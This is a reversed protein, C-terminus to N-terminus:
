FIIKSEKEDKLIYSFDDRLNFSITVITGNFSRPINNFRSKGDGKIEYCENDSILTFAGKNLKIFDLILSFGLGGPASTVKTSNGPIIAWELTNFSMEVSELFKEVNQKITKGFDVITLVLNGMRHFYQGCVYVKDSDAHDIVNNFMELFNDIIRERVKDSMNPMQHLTFINLVIYKEFEELNETTANFARYEITSNYADKVKEWKLFRHLGNMQMVKKIKPHINSLFLAHKRKLVLSELIGGFLAFINAAIFEVNNFDLLIRKEYNSNIIEYLEVLTNYTNIDNNWNKEYQIIIDYENKNDM